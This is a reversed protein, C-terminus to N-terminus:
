GGFRKSEFCALMSCVVKMTFRFRTEHKSFPETCTESAMAECTRRKVVRVKSMTSERSCFMKISTPNSNNSVKTRLTRHAPTTTKAGTQLLKQQNFRCVDSRVGISSKPLSATGLTLFPLTITLRMHRIKRQIMDLPETNMRSCGRPLTRGSCRRNTAKM